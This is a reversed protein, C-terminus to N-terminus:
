NRPSSPQVNEVVIGAPYDAFGRQKLDVVGRIKIWQNNYRDYNTTDSERQSIFIGKKFDPNSSDPDRGGSAKESEYIVFADGRVHAFATVCVCKHEYSKPDRLIQSFKVDACPDRDPSLRAEKVKGVPRVREILLGCANTSILGRYSADIVGTVKVRKKNYAEYYPGERLLLGYIIRHDDGLSQPEPPQYLYFRDGGIMGMAVVTVRKGDFKKPHHIIDDFDAGRSTLCLSMLFALTIRIM